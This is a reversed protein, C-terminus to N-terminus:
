LTDQGPEWDCPTNEGTQLAALVRKIEDVNRGAIEPHVVSYQVVGEPDIIFLGRLAYGTEEKLVGYDSAVRRTFDALIPYPLSKLKPESTRWGFHSFHSDTSAALVEAGMKKFDDYAKGFSELETPCVFTFDLPYFFFVLWKGKYDDLSVDKFANDPTLKAADGGVLATDKFFPAKKGPLLPM